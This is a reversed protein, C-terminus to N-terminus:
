IAIRDMQYFSADSREHQIVHREILQTGENGRGILAAEGGRRAAQVARLGRDAFEDAVEFRLDPDM